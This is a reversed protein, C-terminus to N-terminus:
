SMMPKRVRINKGTLRLPLLFFSNAANFTMYIDYKCFLAHWVSLFTHSMTDLTKKKLNPLHVLRMGLYEKNKKTYYSSRCYVTVNHGKKVLRKGIEEVCTEFGGYNAPVGRTGILAITLRYRYNLDKLAVKQHDKSLNRM